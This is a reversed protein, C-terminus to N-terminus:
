CSGREPLEPQELWRRAFDVGVQADFTDLPLVRGWAV